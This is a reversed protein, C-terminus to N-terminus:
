AMGNTFIVSNRKLIHIACCDTCDRFVAMTYGHLEPGVGTFMSAWNPASSSPLISRNNLTSAGEKMLRNFNPMPHNRIAVASLGDFAVLVVHKPRQKLRPGAASVESVFLGLILSFIFLISIKKM